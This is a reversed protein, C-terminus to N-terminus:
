LEVPRRLESGPAQPAAHRCQPAEEQVGVEVQAAMVMDKAAWGAAVAEREVVAAMEEEVPAGWVKTAAVRAVEEGKAVEVLGEWDVVEVEKVESGVWVQQEEVAEAAM